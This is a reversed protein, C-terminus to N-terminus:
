HKSRNPKEPRVVQIRGSPKSLSPDTQKTITSSKKQPQKQLCKRLFTPTSFLNQKIQQLRLVLCGIERKANQFNLNSKIKKLSNKLSSELPRYSILENSPNRCLCSAKGARNQHDRKANRRDFAFVLKNTSEPGAKFETTCTAIGRRHIPLFTRLRDVIEM